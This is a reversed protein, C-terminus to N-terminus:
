RAVVKDSRFWTHSLSQFSCYLFQQRTESGTIERAEKHVSCLAWNRTAHTKSCSNGPDSRKKFIEMLKAGSARKM